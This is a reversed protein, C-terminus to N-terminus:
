EKMLVLGVAKLIVRLIEMLHAKLIEKALVLRFEKALVLRIELEFALKFYACLHHFYTMVVQNSISPYELFGQELLGGGYKLM